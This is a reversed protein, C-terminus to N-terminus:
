NLAKGSEYNKIAEYMAIFEEDSIERCLASTEGDGVTGMVPVLVFMDDDRMPGDGYVFFTIQPFRTEMYTSLAAASSRFTSPPIIIIESVPRSM